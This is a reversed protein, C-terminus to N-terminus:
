GDKRAKAEASQKLEEARHVHLAGHHDEPRDPDTGAAGELVDVVVDDEAEEDPHDTGGKDRILEPVSQHEGGVDNATGVANRSTWLEPPSADAKSCGQM